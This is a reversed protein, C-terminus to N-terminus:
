RGLLRAAVGEVSAIGAAMSEHGDTLVAIARLGSGDRLEAAQHVLQGSPTTRWGGKFRVSWRGPAVRPIGWSQEAVISGLLGSGFREFREPFAGELNGFLRALDAASTMANGWHGSVEFDDMGLRGALQLLPDDGVRAYVADAADNDSYTIMAELEAEVATDLPAGADALRRLEAALLLVKVVSAAHYTSHEGSGRLRGDAAVFAFSVEGERGTAFRRAREIAARAAEAAAPAPGSRSGALNLRAAGPGVTAVQLPVARKAGLESRGVDGPDIGFGVLSGLALGAILGIV